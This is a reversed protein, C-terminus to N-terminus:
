LKPTLTEEIVYEILYDSRRLGPYVNRLLYRYQAPYTTKIKENKADPKLDSDIIALIGEKNEIDSNVVWERLGEWNEPEYSVQIFGEPFSYLEKVYKELAAARGKALKENFSYPGEPSAFGKISLAVLNLNPNNKVSDISETIKALEVKNNRYDPYITMLNVPFDVYASGKIERVRTEAVAEVIEVEEAIEVPESYSTLALFDEDTGKGCCKYSEIKAVLEAGDMWDAYQAEQSYTITQNKETSREWIEDPGTIPMRNLRKLNYMQSRGYFGVVPLSLTDTGNVLLPSITVAADRHLKDVCVINMNVDLNDGDRNLSADNINIDIDAGIASIATLISLTITAFLRRIPKM